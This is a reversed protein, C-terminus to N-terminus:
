ARTDRYIKIDTPLHGRKLEIEYEAHDISGNPSFDCSNDLVTMYWNVDSPMVAGSLIVNMGSTESFWELSKNSNFMDPNYTWHKGIDGTTRLDKGPNIKLGRYVTLPFRLSQIADITYKARAECSSDYSYDGPAYKNKIVKVIDDPSPITDSTSLRHNMEQVSEGDEFGLDYCPHKEGWQTWQKVRKAITDSDLEVAECYANFGQRLPKIAETIGFRSCVTDIFKGYLERNHM